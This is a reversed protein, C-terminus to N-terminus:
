WAAREWVSAPTTFTREADDQRKVRMRAAMNGDVEVSLIEKVFNTATSNVM